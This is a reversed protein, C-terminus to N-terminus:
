NSNVGFVQFEYLSYGWDTIRQLGYMRIYRAKVAKFEIEDEEGDGEETSYVQTWENGDNSVQIKYSRAFAREWFLKVRNIMFNNGLDIRIWQPDSFDSSWRSILHGDVANEPKFSLNETSSAKVAKNLAINSKDIEMEFKDYDFELYRTRLASDELGFTGKIYNDEWIMDIIGYYPDAITIRGETIEQEDKELFELYAQLMEKSEDRSNGKLIFFTFLGVNSFYYDATYAMKFFPYGLFDKPIFKDRNVQRNIEPFIKFLDPFKNEGPLLGAIQGAIDSLVSEENDLNYASIKVYFCDKYFNLIGTEYYGETGINIFNGIDGYREQSYIGFGYDPNEHRYIEVTISQGAPGKYTQVALERFEYNLYMDAAGNIIEYLNGPQYTKIEDTKSFGSIDPFYKKIDSDARVNFVQILMCLFASIIIFQTKRTKM